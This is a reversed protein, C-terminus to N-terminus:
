TYKMGSYVSPVRFYKTYKVHVTRTSVFIFLEHVHELIPVRFEFPEPEPKPDLVHFCSLVRCSGNALDVVM